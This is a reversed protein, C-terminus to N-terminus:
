LLLRLHLTQLPAHAQMQLRQRLISLLLEM